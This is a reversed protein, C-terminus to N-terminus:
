LESGEKYERALGRLRVFGEGSIRLRFNDTRRPLIPMVLTKGHATAHKYLPEFTGDDHSAEITITAGDSIDARLIAKTYRRRNLTDEFLKGTTVSWRVREDGYGFRLVEGTDMDLAYLDGEYLDFNAVQLNDERLWIGRITDLFYLEWKESDADQMSLYLNRGDTGGVANGFRRVGFNASILSPATGSYAYVGGPAYYYLVEGIVVTSMHCGKKIGEINYAYAGYNAPETGLIKHVVHEKFALLEGSLSAIGTWEGDTGVDTNWPDMATGTDESFVKPDGQKSAYIKKGKVGWLRNQYATIFDLDPDAIRQITIDGKGNLKAVSDAFTISNDDHSVYATEVTVGGATLRLRDATTIANTNIITEPTPNLITQAIEYRKTTIANYYYHDTYLTRDIYDIQEYAKTEEDFAVIDGVVLTNIYHNHDITQWHEDREGVIIDNTYDYGITWKPVRTRSKGIITGTTDEAWGSVTGLIETALQDSYSITVYDHYVGPWYERKETEVKRVRYVVDNIQIAHNTTIQNLYRPELGSSSGYVPYSLVTPAAGGQGYGTITEGARVAEYVYGKPPITLKKGSATLGVTGNIPLTLELATFTGDAMNYYIKDPWIILWDEVVAIQKRGPSVNGIKVGDYYFETGIVLAMKGHVYMATAGEHTETVERSPRPVVAPYERSSVNETAEWSGPACGPTYDIGGFALNQQRVRGDGYILSPLKGM